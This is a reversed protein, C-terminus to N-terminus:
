KEEMEDYLEAEPKGSIIWYNYVGQGFAYAFFPTIIAISWQETRVAIWLWFPESCLGLIFGWRRWPELRGLFWISSIGLVVIAIQSILDM